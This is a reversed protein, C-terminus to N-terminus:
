MKRTTAKGARRLKRASQDKESVEEADETEMELNNMRIEDTQQRNTELRMQRVNDDYKLEEYDRAIDQSIGHYVL